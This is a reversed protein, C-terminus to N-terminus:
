SFNGSQLEAAATDCVGHHLPRHEPPPPATSAHVAWRHSMVKSCGWTAHGSSCMQGDLHCLRQSFARLADILLVAIHHQLCLAHGLGANLALGGAAGEKRLEEVECTLATHQIGKTRYLM